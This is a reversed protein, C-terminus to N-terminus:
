KRRGLAVEKVLEVSSAPTQEADGTVLPCLEPLLASSSNGGGVLPCASRKGMRGSACKGDQPTPEGRGKQSDSVPLYFKRPAEPGETNGPYKPFFLDFENQKSM